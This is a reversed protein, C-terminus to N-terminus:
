STKWYTDLLVLCIYGDLIIYVWKISNTNPSNLEWNLYTIFNVGFLNVLGPISIVRLQM